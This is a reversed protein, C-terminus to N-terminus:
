QAIALDTGLTTVSFKKEQINLFITTQREINSKYWSGWVQTM